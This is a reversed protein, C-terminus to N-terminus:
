RRPKKARPLRAKCGNYHAEIIGMHMKSYGSTETSCEKSPPQQGICSHKSKKLITRRRLSQVFKPQHLPGNSFAGDPPPSVFAATGVTEDQQVLIAAADRKGHYAHKMDAFTMGEGQRASQSSQQATVADVDSVEMACDAVNREKAVGVDQEAQTEAGQRAEGTTAAATPAQKAVDDQAANLKEASLVQWVVNEKTPTTATQGAGSETSPQAALSGKPSQLPAASAAANGQLNRRLFRAEDKPLLLSAAQEAEPTGQM